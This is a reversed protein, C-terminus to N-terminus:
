AIEIPFKGEHEIIAARETFEFILDENDIRSLLEEVLPNM